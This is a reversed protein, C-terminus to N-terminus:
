GFSPLVKLRKWVFFYKSDRGSHHFALPKEIRVLPTINGRCMLLIRRLPLLLMVSSLIATAKWRGTAQCMSPLPVGVYAIVTSDVYATSAAKTSNDGATQTKVTLNVGSAMTTMDVNGTFTKAGTITETGYIPINNNYANIFILHEENDQKNNKELSIKLNNNTQHSM